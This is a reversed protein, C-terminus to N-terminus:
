GERVKSLESNWDLNSFDINLAEFHLSELKISQKISDFQASNSPVPPPTKTMTVEEKKGKGKSQRRMMRVLSRAKPTSKSTGSQGTSTSTVTSTPSNVVVMGSGLSPLSQFYDSSEIGEEMVTRPPVIPIHRRIEDLSMSAVPMILPTKLRENQSEGSSRNSTLSGLSDEREMLRHRPLPPPPSSLVITAELSHQRVHTRQTITVETSQVRTLYDQLSASPDRQTRPSIAILTQQEHPETDPGNASTAVSSVSSFSTSRALRSQTGLDAPPPADAVASAVATPPSIPPGVAVMTPPSTSHGTPSIEATRTVGRHCTSPGAVANPLIHPSLEFVIPSGIPPTDLGSFRNTHTIPSGVGRFSIDDSRRRPKEEKEESSSGEGVDDQDSKRRYMIPLEPVKPIPSGGGGAMKKFASSMNSLSFRKVMKPRDVEKEKGKGKLDPLPASTPGSVNIKPSKVEVRLNPKSQRSLLTMRKKAPEATNALHPPLPPVPPPSSLGFSLLQKLSKQKKLGPTQTPAPTDIKINLDRAGLAPPPTPAKISDETFVPRTPQSISMPGLIPPSLTPSPSETTPQDPTDIIPPLHDVLARDSFPLPPSLTAPSTQKIKVITDELEGEDEDENEDIDDLSQTDFEFEDIEAEVGVELPSDPSPPRDYEIIEAPAELLPISNSRQVIPASDQDQEIPLQIDRDQEHHHHYDYSQITGEFSDPSEREEEDESLSGTGDVPSDPDTGGEASVDGGESSARGEDTPSEVEYDGEVPMSSSGAAPSGPGEIAERALRKSREAVVEARRKPMVVNM